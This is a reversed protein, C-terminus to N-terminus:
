IKNTRLIRWSTVKELDHSFLAMRSFAQISLCSVLSHPLPLLKFWLMEVQGLHIKLCHLLSHLSCCCTCTLHLSHEENWSCSMKNERTLSEQADCTVIPQRLQRSVCTVNTDYCCLFYDSQMTTVAVWPKWIFIYHFTKAFVNRM